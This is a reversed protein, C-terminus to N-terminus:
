QKKLVITFWDQGRLNQESVFATQYRVGALGQILEPTYFFYTRTGFEDSCTFGKEPYADKKLSIYFIGDDALASHAKELVKAVNERNSHLLSAFSVIADVNKPFEYNEIDAVEFKDDPAYEQAVHVFEESIDIGLYNDTHKLIEKADRGNGCGIELIFPNEKEIFGFLREVDEARAGLSNFKDTM